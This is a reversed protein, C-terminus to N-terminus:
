AAAYFLALIRFKLPYKAREGKNNLYAIIRFIVRSQRSIAIRWISLKWARETVGKKKKELVFDQKLDKSKRTYTSGNLALDLHRTRDNYAWRLSLFM